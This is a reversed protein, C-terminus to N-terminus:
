VTLDDISDMSISSKSDKKFPKSSPDSENFSIRQSCLDVTAFLKQLRIVNKDLVFNKRDSCATM